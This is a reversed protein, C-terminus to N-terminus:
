SLKKSVYGMGLFGFTLCTVLLFSDMVKISYYDVHWAVSIATAVILGFSFYNFLEENKSLISKILKSFLVLGALFGLSFVIVIWFSTGFWSYFDIIIKEASELVLFYIGLLMMLLSGGVGPLLTALASLVGFAFLVPYSINSLNSTKPSLGLWVMLAIALLCFVVKKFSTRTLKAQFDFLGSIIIGLFFFITYNPFHEYLYGIVLISLIIGTLIGAILRFHRKWIKLQYFNGTIDLFDDYSNFLVAMAAGSVTPLVNAVGILVGAIFKKM